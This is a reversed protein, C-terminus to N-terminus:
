EEQKTTGTETVKTTGDEMLKGDISTGFKIFPRVSITFKNDPLISATAEKILGEFKKFKIIEGTKTHKM